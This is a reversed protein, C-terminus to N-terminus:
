KVHVIGKLYESAGLDLSRESPLSGSVFISHEGKILVQKGQNNFLKLVDADLEFRVSKKEGPKLRIRKIGKLSYQPVEFESKPSTVYLQVVEEGENKGINKITAEVSFSQGNRIKEESIELDSYEFKSYSLGFGFPFLPDETMYRYTRGKMAYDKFDPLKYDMKPFTVPLRGSPNANGFIIDAVADGGEEGPYWIFLIADALEYLEPDIIPGGGSLVLIIPKNGYARQTKLYEIQSKPLGLYPRDGNGPSAIAAGQEGEMMSSIGAVAVIADFQHSIDTWDGKAISGVTPMTGPRYEVKTGPHSRSVIGELVTSMDGNLGYYNGLLIDINTAQPGLVYVKQIDHKLPLCGNNKLMVISKVAAEYALKRNEKSDIFSSDIKRFPNLNEPDFDGLNFRVKLVYYVARDIEEETILGQELAKPLEKYTLGLNQDIGTKLALAASEVANKTKGHYLHLNKIAGGDSIILNKYQWKNRLVEQNMYPNALLSEGYLMNYSAMVMQVDAEQVLAKFAPLYTEYLDKIPPRADISHREAEPGSHVAWHKACAAGRLYKPHNGQIGKVFAVGLRSTLFPDEGYTEQGRGWRPDRFININPSYYTIGTAFDNYGIAHHMKQKAQGEKSIATAVRYILDEDFTAGLGIAQPFVTAKGARAIGHLCEHGFHFKDIGLREIEPNHLVLFSMKEEITMRSILDKIRVDVPLTYDRFPYDFKRTGKLDSIDQTFTQNGTQSSVTLTIFLFLTTFINKM